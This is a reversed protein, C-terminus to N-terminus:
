ALDNCGDEPVPSSQFWGRHPTLNVHNHTAGTRRSPHPNFGAAKKEAAKRKATAGTRRSPHPNFRAHELRHLRRLDPTAGTRRSPHPNFRSTICLSSTPEPQVRGGPRTLISVQNAGHIGVVMQLTAGTRRSPHPNFGASCGTDHSSDINCGDKPVPSSQFEWQQVVTREGTLTAGTRRSPHPNFSCRRVEGLLFAFGM